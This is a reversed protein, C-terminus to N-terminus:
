SYIGASAYRVRARARGGEGFAGHGGEDLTPAGCIGTITMPPWMSADCFPSLGPLHATCLAFGVDAKPSRGSAGLSTAGAGRDAEWVLRVGLSFQAEKDGAGARRRVTELGLARILVFPNDAQTTWDGVPNMNVNARAAAAGRAGGAGGAAGAGAQGSPRKAADREAKRREQRSPM